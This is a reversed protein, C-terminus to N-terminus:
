RLTSSSTQIPKESLSFRCCCFLLDFIVTKIHSVCTRRTNRSRRNCFRLQCIHKWEANADDDDSGDVRILYKSQMLCNFRNTMRREKKDFRFEHDVVHFIFHSVSCNRQKYVYM